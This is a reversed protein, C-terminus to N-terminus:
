VENRKGVSLVRVEELRVEGRAHAMMEKAAAILRKGLASHKRKSMRNIRIRGRHAETGESEDAFRPYGWSGASRLRSGTTSRRIAHCRNSQGWNWSEHLHLAM